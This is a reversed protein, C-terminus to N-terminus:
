SRFPLWSCMSATETPFCISSATAAGSWWSKPGAQVGHWESERGSLGSAPRIPISDPFALSKTHNLATLSFVTLCRDGDSPQVAPDINVGLIILKGNTLSSRAAKQGRIGTYFPNLGFRVGM